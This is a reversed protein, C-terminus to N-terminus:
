RKPHRGSANYRANRTNLPGNPHAAARSPPAPHPTHAAHTCVSVRRSGHACAQANRPPHPPTAHPHRPLRRARRRECGVDAGICEVFGLRPPRNDPGGLFQASLVVLAREDSLHLATVAPGPPVACRCRGTISKDVAVGAHTDAHMAHVQEHTSSREGDRSGRTPGAM